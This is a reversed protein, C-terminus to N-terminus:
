RHCAICFDAAISADVPMHLVLFIARNRRVGLPLRITFIRVASARDRHFHHEFPCGWRDRHFVVPDHNFNGRVDAGRVLALDVDVPLVLSTPMATLGLRRLLYVIAPSESTPPLPLM